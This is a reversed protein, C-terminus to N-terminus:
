PQSNGGHVRNGAPEIITPTVNMSHLISELTPADEAWMYFHVRSNAGKFSSTLLPHVRATEDLARRVSNVFETINRDNLLPCAICRVRGAKIERDLAQQYAEMACGASWNALAPQGFRKAIIAVRIYFTEALNSPKARADRSPKALFALALLAAVITVAIVM